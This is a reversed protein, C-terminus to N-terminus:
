RDGRKGVTKVKLEICRCVGNLGTKFVVRPWTNGYYNGVPTELRDTLTKSNRKHFQRMMSYVKNRDYTNAHILKDNFDNPTFLLITEKENGNCLVNEM